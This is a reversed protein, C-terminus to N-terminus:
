TSGMVYLEPWNLIINVADWKLIKTNITVVNHQLQPKETFWNTGSNGQLLFNRLKFGLRSDEQMSLAHDGQAYM